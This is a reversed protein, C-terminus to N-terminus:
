HDPESRSEGKLYPPRKAPIHGYDSEVEPSSSFSPSPSFSSSCSASSSSPSSLSSDSSDSDDHCHKKAKTLTELLQKQADFAKQLDKIESRIEMRLDVAKLKTKKNCASSSNHERCKTNAPNQSISLKAM